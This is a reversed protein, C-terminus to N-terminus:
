DENRVPCPFLVRRPQSSGAPNFSVLLGWCVPMGQGGALRVTRM